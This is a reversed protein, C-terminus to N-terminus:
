WRRAPLRHERGDLGFALTALALFIGGLRLAPIALLAGILGAVAGGILM